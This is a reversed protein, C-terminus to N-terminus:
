FELRYRLDVGVNGVAQSTAANVNDYSAGLSFQKSLRWEIQAQMERREGFGSTVSARLSESLKKGLTVQPETRGTRLSYATGFRFEDIVPIAQSLTENVGTVNALLDLGAGGAVNGGIQASEAKTMGITLLWFLDEQSLPPESSLEMKLEDRTGYVHMKIRWEGTAGAAGARRFDTVATVDINPDVKTEDEFRLSGERIEFNHRRLKFQGGPVVALDGIVGWRQNSGVVRMGTTGVGLSADVLNNRVKFGRKSRIEIDFLAVDRVPDYTEVETRKATQIAGVDFLKIQKEYLFSEVEVLGEIRAPEAAKGPDPPSWTARLDADFTTSMGEGYRFHVNHSAFKVDVDGLKGQKLAAGGSMDFTGGGLEGHMKEVTVGKKPDVKISGNVAVLPMSFQKFSFAGNEIKLEGDWTPAALTGGVALKAHAMGEARDIWKPFFEELRALPITPLDVNIALDPPKSDNPHRKIAAALLVKTPLEGFKLSLATQPLSLGDKGFTITPTPAVTALSMDGRAADITLHEVKGVSNWWESIPYAVLTVDASARGVVAVNPTEEHKDELSKAADEPRLLSLPALDLNRLAVKGRAVKKRADTVRFDDLKVSGAFLDGSISFEGEVPDAVYRAVDFAPPKVKQYCGKADPQLSPAISAMPERIVRLRSKELTHSEVRVPSVNVDAVVKMTNFTGGIEAVADVNGHIPITMKPMSALSEIAVGAATVKLNLNGGRRVTGSAVITGGGKKRLTAAHVDMDMGLGGGDFDWWTLSVDGQGGDYREGFLDLALISGTIDLDLRGTGCPDTHGGVKFHARADVSVHGRIDEWRPDANMKLIAYLDNLDFNASKALADIVPGDAPALDIRMSAVDYKSEGHHAKLNEVEILAEDTFRFTASEIDGLMFEDFLTNAFSATGEGKFTDFTGRIKLEAKGVGGIAFKALPTADALDLQESKVDLEFRSDFGLHVRGDARTGGFVAHVGEFGLHDPRIVVRATIDAVGGTKPSLGIVHGHNPKEVPAQALEFDHTNAKIEGDLQLPDLFGAINAKAEKFDWRVHAARSIALERILGPFPLEKILVNAKLPIKKKALPQPALKVELDSVTVQGGGYDVDIKKSALTLPAKLQIDGGAITGFHFQALRLDHGEFRGVATARMIGAIPDAFDIQALGDLDLTVWGDIPDFPVYRYALFTPLRVRLRGGTKGLWLKPAAGDTKPIDLDFDDLRLSAVRGDATAGPACSPAAGVDANDDIRADIEFHKLEIDFATSADTVRAAISLNCLTDDDAMVFAPFEKKKPKVGDPLDPGYRDPLPYENVQLHKSHVVGNAKHLRIDYVPTGEGGVDVDFDIGALDFAMPEKGTTRHLLKVKAGTIAVVRFPPEIQKPTTTKPPHEKLKLPLNVPNGDLLELDVEPGVLEITDLVVRGSLLAFPRLTVRAEGIRAVPHGPTVSAVEIDRVMVGPPWLAREIKLSVDLNTEDKVAAAIARELRGRINRSQFLFPLAVAITGVLTLVFLALGALLRGFDLGGQHSAHRNRLV